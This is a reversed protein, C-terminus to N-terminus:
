CPLGFACVLLSDCHTDTNSFNLDMLFLRVENKLECVCQLVKRRSLWTVEMHFLLADHEAGMEARLMAFLRVKTPQTKIFNEEKWTLSLALSHSCMCRAHTPHPPTSVAITASDKGRMLEYKGERQREECSGAVRLQSQIQMM